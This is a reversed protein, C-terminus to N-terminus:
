NRSPPRLAWGARDPGAALRSIQPLDTGTCPIRKKGDALKNHIIVDDASRSAPGVIGAPHQPSLFRTSPHGTATHETRALREM